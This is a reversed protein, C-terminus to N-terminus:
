YIGINVPFGLELVNIQCMKICIKNEKPSVPVLWFSLTFFSLFPTDGHTKLKYWLLCLGTLDATSGKLYKRNQLRCDPSLDCPNLVRCPQHNQNQKTQTNKKKM